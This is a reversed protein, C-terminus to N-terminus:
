IEIRIAEAPSKRLVKEVPIFISFATSAISILFLIFYTLFNLQYVPTNLGNMKMFEHNLWVMFISSGLYALLLSFLSVYIGESSFIFFINKGKAGLARLVGMDRKKNEITFNILSFLMLMSFIISVSGAIGAFKKYIDFNDLIPEILHSAGCNLEYKKLPEEHAKLYHVINKWDKNNHILGLFYCYGVHNPLKEILFGEKFYATTHYSGERVDRILRLENELDYSNEDYVRLGEFEELNLGTNIIGSIILEYKKGNYEYILSQGIIKDKTVDRPLITIEETQYGYQLFSDYLYDTIMVEEYTKPAHGVIPYGLDQLYDENVEMALASRSCYLHDKEKILNMEEDQITLDKFRMQNSVGKFNLNHEQNLKNIFTEDFTFSMKNWSSDEEKRYHETIFVPDLFADAKLSNYLLEYKSFFNIFLCVGLFTLSLFTLFIAFTLRLKNIRLNTFGMKLSAFISLSKKYELEVRNEEEIEELSVEEKQRGEALHLIQEAYTEAYEENHTVLIVLYEKSLEKLIEFIEVAIEQDLSGTPEDAIIIRPKKILARAIAVRQKQGGSLEYINRYILDEIGVKRLVEIIEAETAKRGQLELALSVNKYVNLNELLNFEQFVFGVCTNRYADFDKGKFSSFAQGEFIVEGSTPKDLGAIINLLTTKGSGSKGLIAYFGKEKFEYNIDTLAQVKTKQKTKYVKTIKRLQLM